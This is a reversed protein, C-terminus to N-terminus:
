KRHQYPAPMPFFFLFFSISTYPYVCAHYTVELKTSNSEDTQLSKGNSCLLSNKEPEAKKGKHALTEKKHPEEKEVPTEKIEPAITDAKPIRKRKPKEDGGKNDSKMNAQKDLISSVLDQKNLKKSNPINLEDAIDLLEPVLLENLQSIDYM